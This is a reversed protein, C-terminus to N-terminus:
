DNRIPGTAVTAFRDTDSTCAESADDPQEDADGTRILDMVRWFAASPLISLVSLVSLNCM